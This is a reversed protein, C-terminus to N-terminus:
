SHWRDFYLLGIMTKADRIEGDRVMSLAERMSFARPLIREDEETRAPGPRLNQALFLSMKETLLGPSPYCAVLKRWSSARYGTEETLERRATQLPTEGQDITGAPLEWLLRGAAMRYQRILLVRGDSFRPLIVAAGPHHVIDRVM